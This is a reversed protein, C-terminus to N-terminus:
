ISIKMQGRGARGAIWHVTIEGTGYLWWEALDRQGRAPLSAYLQHRAENVRSQGWGDLHHLSQELPSRLSRASEPMQLRVSVGPSAGIDEGRQLASTPLFGRNELIVQLHKLEGESHLRTELHIQPLAKRLREAMRYGRDCERQLLAEPPNRITRMYDIGGIEVPGLQPHDFPDWPRVAQPDQSFHEIVPRLKEPEPQRFFAAPQALDIGAEKFPDWFEVTYGPVGFIVTMTDSWVGTTPRKPDYMFDPYVRIVRYDTGQTADKALEEMLRIDDEKLPSDQRYPQTLICGTYTHFTLGGCISPFRAFTDVVARSEQESLAYSGADMGFMSTPMWHGPFNRNLDIGHRLPAASWCVGDWNLFHGESCFFFADEPDDDLTRHRMWMPLTPDIVFPGAPHKWRMWRVVGDKDLDSPELGVRSEGEKPPRLSSRLYPAGEHLAQYGDPSICPMVLIRQHALWRALTEDGDRLREIWRSVTYLAASIGTWESAHTGADLWLSPGEDTQAQQGGIQLLWIAREERTRGVEELRVWAPFEQALQRCWAEVAPYDLYREARYPSWSM